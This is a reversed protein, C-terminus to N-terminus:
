STQVGDGDTQDGLRVRMSLVAKDDYPDKSNILDKAILALCTQGLDTDLRDTSIDDSTLDSEAMVLYNNLWAIQESTPATLGLDNELLTLATVSAAM